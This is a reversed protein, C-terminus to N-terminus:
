KESKQVSNPLLVEEQNVQTLEVQSPAAGNLLYNTAQNVQSVEQAKPIMSAIREINDPSMENLQAETFSNGSYALIADVNAKKQAAYAALSGSILNRMELPMNEMYADMTLPESNVVPEAKKQANSQFSELREDTLANLFDRDSDCFGANAILDDIVAERNMKSNNIQFETKINAQMTVSPYSVVKYVKEPDGILEIKGEENVSYMQKFYIPQPQDRVVVKYIYHDEYLAELWHIRDDGDMRDLMCQIAGSLQTYEANIQLQSIQYAHLEEKSAKNVVMKENIVTKLNEGEKNARIGCGDNLSCAGNENPLIALHDPRYNTTRAQYTEGNWEGQEPIDESFTGISVNIAENNNILQLTQPSLENIRANDIWAEAKLKDGDMNANYIVGINFTNSINPDAISVFTGNVQPHMLTVPVGNWRSVSASLEETTHLLPGASGNHVGERMMVVPVVIHARGNLSDQRVTYGAANNIKLHIM